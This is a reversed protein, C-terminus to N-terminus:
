LVPTNVLPFEVFFTTGKGPVSEFGIKGNMKEVMTKTINLGLGTGYIGHAGQAFKQFIKPQFDIPIGNGKDSVAIRINKEKIQTSVHVDGGPKSFKAANSLLNSLIQIFRDTDIHVLADACEKELSFSVQYQDGYSKNLAISQELLTVIKSDVMNFRMYGSEAQGAELLDNILLMLRNCGQQSIDLMNAVRPPVDKGLLIPLVDISGKLATLPTRLEHTVVYIFENKLETLRKKETIMEAFFILGGITGDVQRWPVMEYNVWEEAGDKGTFSIEQRKITEGNLCRQHMAKVDDTYHIFDFAEYHSQGIIADSLHFDQLWRDSAELYRMHKDLIAVSAPTHQIFLKLRAENNVHDIYSKRDNFYFWTLFFGLTLFAADFLLKLYPKSYEPLYVALELSILHMAMLLVAAVFILFLASGFRSNKFFSSHYLTRPKM